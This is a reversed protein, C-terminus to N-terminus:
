YGKRLLSFIRELVPLCDRVLALRGKPLDPLRPKPTRENKTTRGAAPGVPRVRGTDGVVRALLADKVGNLLRELVVRAGLVDHRLAGSSRSAM